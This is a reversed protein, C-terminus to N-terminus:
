DFKIKGESKPIFLIPIISLISIIGGIILIPPTPIFGDGSPIGWTRIALSGIPPGIVMPLLVFFIMRIGQFKGVNGEPYRDLLWGGHAITAAISPVTAFFYLIFIWIKMEALGYGYFAAIGVGITLFSSALNGWLVLPKRNFKHSIFGITLYSIVVAVIFGAMYGSLETKGIGVYHELFIFLYPFYVNLAIGNIAMNIFLLFLVKNDKLLRIDFISGLEKWFSRKPETEVKLTPPSPLIFISLIGTITVIGGLGYFFIFYGFKDIVAGALVTTLALAIYSMIDNLSQIRNRNTSHSNDRLWANYASDNATSGFFTMVADTIIVLIIAIGITEVWEIMPYIATIIGWAIYGFVIYPKRKGWKSKTRDSAIGMFLATIMATAASVAVMWAIPGPKTTIRDYVFTNFWTNEVSWAIQGATGIFFIALLNRFGIRVVKKKENKQETDSSM